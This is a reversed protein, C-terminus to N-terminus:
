TAARRRGPQAAVVGSPVEYISIPSERDNAKGRGALWEGDQWPHRCPAAVMSATSPPPETQGAYPDAKLAAARRRRRADRIQLARRRRHGARLDGLVRGRQAQADGHRRGDWGNFGGVVSVRRANPAWVAFAVGEVGDHTICHAGLKRYSDLHSGETLLHIDLDGLVPWFRYADDFEQVAGGPWIVRLRYRFPVRRNVRAVFLGAPDVREGESAVAGSAADVVAVADAGPLMARVALGGADEHMGLYVFPDGHTAGVIAAIQPEDAAAGQAAEGASSTEITKSM